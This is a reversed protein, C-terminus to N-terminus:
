ERMHYRTASCRAACGGAYAQYFLDALKNVYCFSISALGQGCNLTKRFFKVLLLDELDDLLFETHIGVCCMICHTMYQRADAEAQLPVM